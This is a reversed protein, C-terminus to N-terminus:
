AARQGSRSAAKSANEALERAQGVLARVQEAVFDAHIKAVEEATRARVLNQAFEFSTAINWEAFGIAQQQLERAATQAAATQGEFTSVAHQTAAMLEDFAKKAQEVGQEALARMEPLVSHNKTTPDVM